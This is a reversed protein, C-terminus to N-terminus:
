TNIRPGTSRMAHSAPLLRVSLVCHMANACRRIAAVCAGRDCGRQIRRMACRRSGSAHRLDAPRRAAGACCRCGRLRHPAARVLDDRRDDRGGVRHRDAARGGGGRVTRGHRGSCFRALPPTLAPITSELGKGYCCDQRPASSSCHRSCAVRFDPLMLCRGSSLACRSSSRSRSRVHRQRGANGTGPSAEGIVAPAFFALLGFVGGVVAAQMEPRIASANSGLSGARRRGHPQLGDGVCGHGRRVRPVPLLWPVPRSRYAAGCLVLHDGILTRMIVLGGSCASLTAVAVRLEFRRLLEEFVFILAPSRRMSRPPWGPAPARRSCREITGRVCSSCAHGPKGLPRPWRCQPGKAASRWDRASRWCGGVFKVPLMAPNLSAAGGRIIAEVRQVGSGSTEPAYRGVLWRAVYPLALPLSYRCWGGWHGSLSAGLRGPIRSVARCCRARLNFASGVLGALAGVALGSAVLALLRSRDEEELDDRPSSPHVKRCKSVALRFARAARNDVAERRRM